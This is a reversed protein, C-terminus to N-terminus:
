VRGQLTAPETNEFVTKLGSTNEKRGMHRIKGWILLTLSNGVKIIVQNLLILTLPYNKKNKVIIHQYINLVLERYFLFTHLYM